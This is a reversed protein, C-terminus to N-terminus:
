GQGAAKLINAQHGADATGTNHKTSNYFHIDFHGSADNGKVYDYNIGPGYDDSRWDTWAGGEAWENGAHFMGAASAAIKRGNYTIIVARKGWNFSGGWIEKLAATDAATLTECDAHNSGVTRKATFSKGTALDTVTFVAGIPVVYQAESWWDLLEGYGAPAYKVPVHHVPITLVAGPKVYSSESLGNTSLLEDFPIGNEIAINWLTDGSKVTYSKYTIYPKDGDTPASPSSPSSAGASPITIVDGINLASSETAGNAKLLDSLSVGFRQSILWYTDGKQVTYTSSSGASPITIVDGINLVSSETAGNANLLDSLSVGYRQAILWYTDGKQVTYTTGSGASPITVVDGIYLVDGEKAGNAKLLDSLSVGYKQSITWYTDGKQVTHTAALASQSLLAFAAFISILSKNKLIIRREYSHPCSGRPTIVYYCLLEQIEGHLYHLGQSFGGPRGNKIGCSRGFIM